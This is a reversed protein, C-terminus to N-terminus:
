KHMAGSLLKDHIEDLKRDTFEAWGRRPVDIDDLLGKMRRQLLAVKLEAKKYLRSKHADALAAVCANLATTMDELRADGKEVNGKDYASHAEDFSSEALALALDARKAPEHEANIESLLPSSPGAPAQVALFFLLSIHAVLLM